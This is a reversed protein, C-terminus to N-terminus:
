WIVHVQVVNLNTDMKRLTKSHETQVLAQRLGVLYLKKVIFGELYIYVCLCM